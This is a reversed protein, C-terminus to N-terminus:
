EERLRETAHSKVKGPLDDWAIETFEHPKSRMVELSGSGWQSFGMNPSEPNSSLCLCDYSSGLGTQCDTVITYRDAVDEGSDFVALIEFQGVKM